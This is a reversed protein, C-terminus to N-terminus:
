RLFIAIFVLTAIIYLEMHYSVKLIFLEETQQFM